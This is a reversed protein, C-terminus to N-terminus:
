KTEDNIEIEGTNNFNEVTFRPNIIVELNDYEVPLSDSLCGTDFIWENVGISDVYELFEKILKIYNNYDLIVQCRMTWWEVILGCSTKFIASPVISLRKLKDIVENINQNTDEIINQNNSKKNETCGYISIFSATIIIGLTINKFQNGRM